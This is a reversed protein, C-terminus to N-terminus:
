EEKGEEWRICLYCLVIAIFTQLCSVNIKSSIAAILVSVWM